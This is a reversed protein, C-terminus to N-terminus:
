APQPRQSLVAAVFSRLGATGFLSRALDLTLFSPADALGITAAYSSWRWEAPDSCLGASVPNLAIYRFLELLHEDGSVPEAYYPGQVVHGVRNARRNFWRAYRGNLRHMGFALTPEPTEVLLHYHNPLLCYAHCLWRAEAVVLALKRLFELYDIADRFIEAQANGRATIHFIGGPIEVRHKQSM